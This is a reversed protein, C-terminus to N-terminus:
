YPERRCASSPENLDNNFEYSFKIGSECGVYLLNVPVLALVRVPALGEGEELHHPITARVQEAPSGPDQGLFPGVPM